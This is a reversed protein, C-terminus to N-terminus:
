KGAQQKIYNISDSLGHHSLAFDVIELVAAVVEGIPSGGSVEHLESLHLERAQSNMDREQKTPPPVMGALRSSLSVVRPPNGSHHVDCLLISKLPYGSM